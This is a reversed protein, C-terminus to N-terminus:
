RHRRQCPWHATQHRAKRVGGEQKQNGILFDHTQHKDMDTDVSLLDSRPSPNFVRAPLEVLHSGVAKLVSAYIEKRKKKEKWEDTGRCSECMSTFQAWPQLFSIIQINLGFLSFWHLIIWLCQTHQITKTIEVDVQWCNKKKRNNILFWFLVIPLTKLTKHNFCSGRSGEKNLIKNTQMTFDNFIAFLSFM